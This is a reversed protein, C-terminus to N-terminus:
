KHPNEAKNIDAKLLRPITFAINVRQLCVTRSPSHHDHESNFPKKSLFFSSLIFFYKELNKRTKFTCVVSPWNFSIHETVVRPVYVAHETNSSCEWPNKICKEKVWLCVKLACWKLFCWELHLM